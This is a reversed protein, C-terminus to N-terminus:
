GGDGGNAHREAEAVLADVDAQDVTDDRGMGSSRALVWGQFRGIREARVLDHGQYARRRPALWDYPDCLWRGCEPPPCPEGAKYAAVGQEVGVRLEASLAEQHDRARLTGAASLRVFWRYIM